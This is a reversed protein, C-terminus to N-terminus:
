IAQHTFHRDPFYDTIFVFLVLVATRELIFVSLNVADYRVKVKVQGRAGTPAHPRWM